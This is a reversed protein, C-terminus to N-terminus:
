YAGGKAAKDVQNQLQIPIRHGKQQTIKADDKMLRKIEYNKM